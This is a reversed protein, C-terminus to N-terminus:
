THVVSNMGTLLLLLGCDRSIHCLMLPVNYASSSPTHSISAHPATLFLGERHGKRIDCGTLSAAGPSRLETYLAAHSFVEWHVTKTSENM